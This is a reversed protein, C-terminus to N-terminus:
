RKYRIYGSCAVVEVGLKQLEDMIINLGLSDSAIHGAIVVNVYHKMAEDRDEERIHMAIETGIGFHSMREYIKSSGSTGGTMGSVVIKGARGNEDGAFITPGAGLKTAQAYEPVQKLIEIIEGVTQPNKKSILKDVFNWVCNDAPTHVNIM